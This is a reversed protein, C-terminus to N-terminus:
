KARPGGKPCGKNGSPLGKQKTRQQHDNQQRREATPTQTDGTLLHQLVLHPGQGVAVGHVVVLVGEFVLHDQVHAAARADQGHEGGISAGLVHVPHTHVYM